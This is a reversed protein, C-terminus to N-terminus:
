NKAHGFHLQTDCAKSTISENLVLQGITQWQAKSKKQKPHDAVEIKYILQKNPYHEVRLEDRFDEKDIRVNNASSFRLWRPAIINEEKYEALPAVTRFTVSPKESGAEKDAKLLESKLKLAIPIDQFRPIRGLPPENDLSLDLLHKTKVGGISHVTFVNLSPSSGLDNPLLKVALGLARRQKQKTGSFTTSARAIVPVRTTQKYLGSFNSDQDIIWEGTFCIGNAQLLKQGREKGLLDQSSSLTRRADQLLRSEAGKQENKFLAKSVKYYPLSDYPTAFIVGKLVQYRNQIQDAAASSHDAAASSHGDVASSHNPVANSSQAVSANSHLIALGVLTAYVTKKDLM